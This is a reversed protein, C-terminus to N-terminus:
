PRGGHAPVTTSSAPATAAFGDLEEELLTALREAADPPLISDKYNINLTAENGYRTVTLLAGYRPSVPTTVRVGQVAFGAGRLFPIPIALVNSANCHVVARKPRALGDRVGPLPLKSLGWREFLYRQVVEGVRLQRRMERHLSRMLAPFDPTRRLDVRPLVWGLHNAFSDFEVTAAARPRLEVISSLLLRRAPHGREASLGASARVWATLLAAHLNGGAATAAARLADTRESGLARHVTRNGGSYDSGTNQWLPTTPAFLDALAGRVYIWAGRLTWWRRKGTPLALAELEARRAPGSIATPEPEDGRIASDLLRFFREILAIFARGDALGHHQQLHLTGGSGHPVWDVRLPPGARLDLFRDRIAAGLDAAADADTAPPHITVIADAVEAPEQPLVWAWTREAADLPRATAAASPFACLLWGVARRIADPALAGEVRFSWTPANSLGADASTAALCAKDLHEFPLLKAPPTTMEDSSPVHWPGSM